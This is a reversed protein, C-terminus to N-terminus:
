NKPINKSPKNNQKNHLREIIDPINESLSIKKALFAKLFNGAPKYNKKFIDEALVRGNSTIFSGVELVISNGTTLKITTNPKLKIIDLSTKDLLFARVMKDAADNRETTSKYVESTEFLDNIRQDEFKSM